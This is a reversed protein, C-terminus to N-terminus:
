FTPGQKLYNFPQSRNIEACTQQGNAVKLALELIELGVQEITKGAEIITGANIDMDGPMNKYTTSNSVV